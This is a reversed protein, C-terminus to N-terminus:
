NEETLNELSESSLHEDAGNIVREANDRLVTLILRPTLAPDETASAIERCLTLLVLFSFGICRTASDVDWQCQVETSGDLNEHTLVTLHNGPSTSFQWEENDRLVGTSQIADVAAFADEDSLHPLHIKVARAAATRVQINQQSM